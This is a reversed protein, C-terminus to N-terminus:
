LLIVHALRRHAVVGDVVLHQKGTFQTVTVVRESSRCVYCDSYIAVYCCLLFSSHSLHQRETSTCVKNTYSVTHCFCTVSQLVALLKSNLQLLLHQACGICHHPRLMLVTTNQSPQESSSCYVITAISHVSSVSSAHCV